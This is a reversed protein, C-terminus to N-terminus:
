DLLGLDSDPRCIGSERAPVQLRVWRAEAVSVLLSVASAGVFGVFRGRGCVRVVDYESQTFGLLAEQRVAGFEEVTDAVELLPSSVREM